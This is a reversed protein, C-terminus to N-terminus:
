AAVELRGRIAKGGGHLWREVMRTWRRNEESDRWTWDFGVLDCWLGPGRSELWWSWGAGFQRAAVM